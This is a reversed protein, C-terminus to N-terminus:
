RERDKEDRAALKVKIAAKKAEVKQAQSESDQAKGTESSVRAFEAKADGKRGQASRAMDYAQHRETNRHRWDHQLSSKELRQKEGLVERQAFLASAAKELRQNKGEFIQSKGAKFERSEARKLSIKEQAQRRLLASRRAGASSILKFTNGVTRNNEAGRIHATLDLANLANDMRGLLRAEQKEFSALAARHRQNLDRLQPRYAEVLDRKLAAIQKQTQTNIESKVDTHRESLAVWERRHHEQLARGRSLLAHDREQQERHLLAIGPANDNAIDHIHHPKDNPAKVFEGDRRRENNIVRDECFVHGREKEYAEAWNSLKIQDNSSPLLRGDHPSIRNCLIHVHPHPEDQHAIIIAQRNDAGIAELAQLAARRMEGQSLAAKEDPHWSLSMHLVSKNSKRGTSKIGAREKLRQQDLATSAMIRWGLDPDDVALNHTQTWAVREATTAANKDHLLYAAAGKFSTGKAIIKPVM